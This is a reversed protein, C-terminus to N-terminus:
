RASLVIVVLVCDKRESQVFGQEGGEAFEVLEPPSRLISVLRVGLFSFTFHYNRFGDERWDGALHLM